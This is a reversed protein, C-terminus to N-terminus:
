SGSCARLAQLAVRSKRRVCRPQTLSRVRAAPGAPTPPPARRRGRRGGPADLGGDASLAVMVPEGDAPWGMGALALVCRMPVRVGGVECATTDLLAPSPAGTPDGARAAAIGEAASAEAAGAAIEGVPAWRAEESTPPLAGRWRDDVARGPDLVPAAVVSLAALLDSGMVTVDGPEVEGAVSATVLVEFPTPAWVAVRSPEGRLRVVVAPDLRVARAVVDALADRAAADPVALTVIRRVRGPVGAGRRHSAPAPRQRPRLARAPHEGRRRARRGVRGRRAAAPPLGRPVVGRPDGAGDDGRAGRGPVLQDATPLHGRAGRRAPRGRVRLGRCPDRRRLAARHARGRAPDGRPRPQRARLRGPRVLAGRRRRHLPGRPPNEGRPPRRLPGHQPNQRAAVSVTALDARGLKAIEALSSRARTLRSANAQEWHEIKEDASEEPGTDALVDLTISRLAAYLEDRLSLRALANWPDSRDLGAVATLLADLGLHESLAYYLDAVALVEDDTVEGDHTHVGGHEREAIEAIEVVDLLGFAYLGGLARRALDVPTGAIVFDQTRRFLGQAEGGRLLDPVRPALNAIWPGFRAIEAGVALPQPRQTLFWRAVRDLQRRAALTIRDAIFTPLVQDGAALDAALEDLGFVTTAIHYARVADGPTASVEQVLRHVYTLGGGDVVTNALMTTVIQRRLPHAAVADPYREALVAPFYTPLRRAFVDLDPLDSEALADTLDLKVHAMLTSLEPSSLGEDESWLAEFGDADPLVDLERDLRGRAELDAVLDRHVHLMGAAHARSVGLVENQSVNDALVLAAVDETTAAIQEDRDAASLEGREVLSDLLIKINVEHDSCDVGASNDIADTNVKGGLRAYEIRGRQTLGLNGGEGVVAVRLDAADVRVADNSKDGVDVHTETSAKVYTGIGGNWLLDAPARLIARILATPDLGGDVLDDTDIGLASAAAGSVPISKDTRPWVGGGDSILTADYDAWSSRPLEFMRRREAFSVAPDPDPDLFVHRHDFAAVIRLHESLLMGNGFVDGSMDGVGVVSVEDSAM